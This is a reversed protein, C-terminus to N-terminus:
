SKQDIGNGVSAFRMVEFSDSSLLVKACTSVAQISFNSHGPPM